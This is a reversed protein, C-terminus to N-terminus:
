FDAWGGRGGQPHNFNNTSVHRWPNLSQPSSRPTLPFLSLFSFHSPLRHSVPPAKHVVARSGQSLKSNRSVPGRRGRHLSRNCKRPEKRPSRLFGHVKESPKTAQHTHPTAHLAPASTRKASRRGRAYRDRQKGGGVAGEFTSAVRSYRSFHRVVQLAAIAKTLACMLPPHSAHPTSRGQRQVLM